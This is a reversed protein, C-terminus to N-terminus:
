SGFDIDSEEDNYYTYNFNHTWYATLLKLANEYNKHPYMRRVYKVLAKPGYVYGNEDDSVFGDATRIYFGYEQIRKSSSGLFVIDGETATSATVVRLMVDKDETALYGKKKYKDYVLEALYLVRAENPAYTDVVDDIDPIYKRIDYPDINM